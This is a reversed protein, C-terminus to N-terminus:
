ADFGNTWIEAKVQEKCAKALAKIFKAHLKHGAKYAIVHGVPVGSMGPEALLSLDGILDLIKHRAPENNVRLPANWYQDGNAILACDELGARIYGARYYATFDNMTGFMRAPSVHFVYPADETPTWSEWQKGIATTKYSLDIGYTLKSMDDVNFMMFADGEQVMVNETIKWAMRPVEGGDVARAPTLGVCCIDYAYSSASGDMIPVEGTGELEIRCNDIGMAELASLLHEAGRVVFDGNLESSLRVDENALEYSARVRTENADYSGAAEIEAALATRANAALERTKEKEEENNSLAMRVRELLMDEAEEDSYDITDRLEEDSANITGSPVKVFYRGEGAKAPRVRMLEVEGSRLGTGAYTVSRRITQQYEANAPVRVNLEAAALAASRVEDRSQFNVYGETDSSSGTAQASARVVRGIRQQAGERACRQGAASVSATGARARRPTRAASAAAAGTRAPTLTARM